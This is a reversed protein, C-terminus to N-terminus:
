RGIRVHGGGDSCAAVPLGLLLVCALLFRGRALRHRRM